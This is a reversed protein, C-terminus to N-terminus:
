PATISDIRRPLGQRHPRLPQRMAAEDALRRTASRTRETAAGPCAPNSCRPRHRARAAAPGSVPDGRCAPVNAYSSASWPAQTSSTSATLRPVDHLRSARLDFPYSPQAGTRSAPSTAGPLTMARSRRRRRGCFLDLLKTGATVIGSATRPRVQCGLRGAAVLTRDPIPAYPTVNMSGGIPQRAVSFLRRRGVPAVAGAAVVRSDEYGSRDTGDHGPGPGTRGAGM